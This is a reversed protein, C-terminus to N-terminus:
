NEGYGLMDLEAQQEPSLPETVLGPVAHTQAELGRAKETDLLRRLEDVRQPQDGALDHEEAPDNALDYLHLFPEQAALLDRLERLRDGFDPEAEFEALLGSSLAETLVRPFHERLFADPVEPHTLLAAAGSESSPYTETLKWDGLVVAYGEHHGGESFLPVEEGRGAEVLPLLSRGHLWGPTEPEGALELLTAYVDVLQVGTAVRTGAGRGGPLKLFLPVELVEQYLRAHGYYEEDFAEGHDGTVIVVAEDWLGQARLADFFSGLFADVKLLSEDYRAIVPEVPVEPPLEAGLLQEQSQVGGRHLVTRAMWDPMARAAQYDAGALAMRMEDPLQDQFRGLFPFEPLYPGHADLAHLFLFPTRGEDLDRLWEKARHTVYAVGYAPNEFPLGTAASDDWLDFGQDVGFREDLWSTDVFGATEYGRARLDEGITWRNDALRWQDLLSASGPGDAVVQHARPFLGSLVSLYSPTTWPANAVCREFLVAESELADLNPTTVRDYGYSALHRASFTDISLFFIPPQPTPDCGELALADLALRSNPDESRWLLELRLISAGRRATPLQLDVSGALPIPRPTLGASDVEGTSPDVLRFRLELAGEGVTNGRIRLAPLGSPAVDYRLGTDPPLRLQGDSREVERRPGYEVSAVALHDFTAKGGAGQFSPVRFELVNEGLRWSAGPTEITLDRPEPGVELGQFIAVGNLLVDVRGPSAPDRAPLLDGLGTPPVWATLRLTRDRPEAALLLLRGELQNLVAAAPTQVGNPLAGAPLTKPFWGGLGLAGWEDVPGPVLRGTQEFVREPERAFLDIETQPTSGVRVLAPNSPSCSMQVVVLGLFGLLILLVTAQLATTLLPRNASTRSDDM